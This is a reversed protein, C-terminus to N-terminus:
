QVKMLTLCKHVSSSNVAVQLHLVWIREAVSIAISSLFVMILNVIKHKSMSSVNNDDCILFPGNTYFPFAHLPKQLQKAFVDMISCVQSRVLSFHHWNPMMDMPSAAESCAELAILYHHFQSHDCISCVTTM